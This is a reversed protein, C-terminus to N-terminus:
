QSVFSSIMKSSQSWRGNRCVAEQLEYLGTMCANGFVTGRDCSDTYVHIQTV